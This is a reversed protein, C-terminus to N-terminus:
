VDMTWGRRTSRQARRPKARVQVAEKAKVFSVQGAGRESEAILCQIQDPQGIRSLSWTAAVAAHLPPQVEGGAQQM